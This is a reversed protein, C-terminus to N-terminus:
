GTRWKKALTLAADFSDVFQSLGSSSSVLAQGAHEDHGLTVTIWRGDVCEWRVSEDDQVPATRWPVYKGTDEKRSPRRSEITPMQLRLKPDRL